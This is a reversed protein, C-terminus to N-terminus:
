KRLPTRSGEAHIAARTTIEHRDLALDCARSIWSRCAAEPSFPEEPSRILLDWMFQRSRMLTSGLMQWPMSYM